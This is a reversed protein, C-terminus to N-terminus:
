AHEFQGNVLIHHIKFGRAEYAEFVQKLATMITSIKENKNTGSNWLTNGM